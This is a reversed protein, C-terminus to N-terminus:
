FNYFNITWPDALFVVKLVLFVGELLENDEVDSYTTADKRLEISDSSVFFNDFDASSLADLSSVADLEEGSKEKQKGNDGKSERAIRCLHGIKNCFYAFSERANKAEENNLKMGRLKLFAFWANRIGFEAVLQL